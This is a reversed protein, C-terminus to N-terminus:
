GKHTITSSRVIQQGDVLTKPHCASPDPATVDVCYEVNVGAVSASVASGAPAEATVANGDVLFVAHCTGSSSARCTFLVDGKALNAELLADVNRETRTTGCGALLMPAVIAVVWKM